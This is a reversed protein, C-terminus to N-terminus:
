VKWAKASIGGEDEDEAKFEDGGVIGWSGDVNASERGRRSFSECWAPVSSRSITRSIVRRVVDYKAASEM